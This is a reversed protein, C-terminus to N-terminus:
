GSDSSFKLQSIDSDDGSNRGEEKELIIYHTDRSDFCSFPYLIYVWKLNKFIDEVVKTSSFNKM